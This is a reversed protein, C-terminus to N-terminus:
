LVVFTIALAVSAVAIGAAVAHTEALETTGAMLGQFLVITEAGERLVALFATLGLALWPVASQKANEVRSVIFANWHEAQSKSTLWSSVYFLTGAAFLQFIGELTDSADDSIVHNIGWALAISAAIAALAGGYIERATRMGADRTGAILAVIVLLAELGERFLIGTAYFFYLLATREM